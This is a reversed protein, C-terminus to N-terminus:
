PVGVTPATRGDLAQEWPGTRPGLVCGSGIAFAENNRRIGWGLAQKAVLVAAGTGSAM